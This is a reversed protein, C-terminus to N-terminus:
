PQEAWGLRFWVTRRAPGGEIGWNGAGAIAIGLFRKYDHFRL